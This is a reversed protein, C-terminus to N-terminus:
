CELMYQLHWAVHALVCGIIISIAIKKDLIKEHVSSINRVFEGMTIPRNSRNKAVVVVPRSDM